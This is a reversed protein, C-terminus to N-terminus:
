ENRCCRRFASFVRRVGKENERECSAMLCSRIETAVLIDLSASSHRGQVYSIGTRVPTGWRVLGPGPSPSPFLMLSMSQSTITPSSGSLLRITRGAGAFATRWSM